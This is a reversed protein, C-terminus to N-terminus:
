PKTPSTLATETLALGFACALPMACSAFGSVDEQLGTGIKVKFHTIGEEVMRGVATELEAPPKIGVM